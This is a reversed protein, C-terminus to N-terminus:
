WRVLVGGGELWCEESGVCVDVQFSVPSSPPSVFGFTRTLCVCMCVNCKHLVLVAVVFFIVWLRMHESSSEGGVGPFVFPQFYFCFLYFINTRTVCFSCCSRQANVKSCVSGVVRCIFWRLDWVAVDHVLFLISCKLFLHCVCLTQIQLQLTQVVWAGVQVCVCVCLIIHSLHTHRSTPQAARPLLQRESSLRSLGSFFTIRGRKKSPTQRRMEGEWGRVGGGCREGGDAVSGPLKEMLGAGSEKWLWTQLLSVPPGERVLGGVESNPRTNPFMFGSQQSEGWFWIKFLSHSKLTQVFWFVSM